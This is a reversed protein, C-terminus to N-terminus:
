KRTQFQVVREKGSADNHVTFHEFGRRRVETRIPSILSPDVEMIIFGGPRLIPPAGDIISKIFTMGERGGDLALHPEFDRVQKALKPIENSKIYPPNSVLIDFDKTLATRLPNFLTGERLEVYNDLEHTRVNNRAVQISLNSIDTAFFEGDDMNLAMAIIVNGCGTAMDYVKPTHDRITKAAELGADVLTETEPRPIFIGSSIAFPVSYFEVEETIYPLPEHKVRRQLIATLKNEEPRSLIRNKQTALQERSLTTVHCVLLEASLRHSEVKKPELTSACHEVAESVNM